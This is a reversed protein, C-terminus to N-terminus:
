GSTGELDPPAGRSPRRGHGNAAVRPRGPAIRTQDKGGRKGLLLAQDAANMLDEPDTAADPLTAVGVSISLQLPEGDARCIGAERVKTRLREALTEAGEAGTEILLVALEDGGYRAGLDISRITARVVDAIRRLVEDGALHGHDDNIRKFDDVDVVLVSLQHGFRMSRDVEDRMLQDLRRRNWLGTLPDTVAQEAVRTHLGTLARALLYALVFAVILFAALLLGAPREVALLGGETRPGLVLAAEERDEDLALLHARYEEGGAEVDATEGPELAAPPPEVTGGLAVGSRILVFERNTLRRLEAAYVDATTVSVLMRGKAEGDEALELEFYAVAETGAEAEVTGAPGLVEVGAARGDRVARAAFARLRPRDGARLGGALARERALRRAAPEAAAVREDHVALATELAAALRADAKGHRSDESVILLIGVLALSPVLVILVFFLALRRGFSMM